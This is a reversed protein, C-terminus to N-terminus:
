SDFFVSYLETGYKDLWDYIRYANKRAWERRSTKGYNTEELLQALEASREPGLKELLDTRNLNRLVASQQKESAKLTAKGEFMSNLTENLVNTSLGNQKTKTLTQKAKKEKETNIALAQVEFVAKFYGFSYAEEVAASEGLKQWKKLYLDYYKHAQREDKFVQLM